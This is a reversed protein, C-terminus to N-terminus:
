AIRHWELQEDGCTLDVPLTSLFPIAMLDETSQKIAATAIWLPTGTHCRSRSKLAIALYVPSSRACGARDHLIPPSIAPLSSELFKTGVHAPGTIRTVPIQLNLRRRGVARGGSFRTGNPGPVRVDIVGRRQDELEVAGAGKGDPFTNWREFATWPELSAVCLKAREHRRGRGGAGAGARDGGGGSGRGLAEFVQEEM